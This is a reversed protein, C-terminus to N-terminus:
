ASTYSMFTLQCPSLRRQCHAVLGTFLGYTTAHSSLYGQIWLIQNNLESQLFSADHMLWDSCGVGYKIIAKHYICPEKTPMTHGGSYFHSVTPTIHSIFECYYCWQQWSRVSKEPLVFDGILVWCRSALMLAETNMEKKPTIEDLSTKKPITVMLLKRPSTVSIEDLSSSSAAMHLQQLHLIIELM